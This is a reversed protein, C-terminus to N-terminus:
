FDSLRSFAERLADEVTEGSGMVTNRSADLVVWMSDEEQFLSLPLYFHTMWDFLEDADMDTM